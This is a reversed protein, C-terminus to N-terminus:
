YRTSSCNREVKIEVCVARFQFVHLEAINGRLVRAQMANVNVFNVAVLKDLDVRKIGVITVEKVKLARTLFSFYDM